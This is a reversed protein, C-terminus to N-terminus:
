HVYILENANLIARAFAALGHQAILKRADDLETADPQRAFALAFAREIEHGPAEAKLREALFRAQDLVFSNNLLALAQLPSTTVIRKPEPLSSDPCDYQGLLESRVSRAATQYIARRWTDPGFSERPFYTAVNDVTYKFLQFGPGGMRRDLQGSVALITDRIAEAALRQPPYRWLYRAESDIKANAEHHSSSQRYARSLMIERHLPKLRWGHALLRGALHDLLAPHTPREGNFGFDSPAGALGRGFHHQWVRNALVRPTLPNRADTIWRALAERRGRSPADWPLEFRDFPLTSLSAPAIEAGRQMVNGGKLLYVPEPPAEPKGAYVTPLKPLKNLAARAQKERAELARWEPRVRDLLLAEVEGPAAPLRGESGAAQRWARGDLSVEIAYRAAIPGTFREQFGGLRDYSWAVKDITEERALTFTLEANNAAAFWRRDYAGDNLFRAAYADPNGDAKRTSSAEISAQRAVNTAGSFIELEDLGPAGRTTELIRLRVYRARTPAFTEETLRADPAPRYSKLIAERRAAIEPAAAKKFEALAESAEQLAKELLERQRAAEARQAPTVWEREGHTFGNFVAALRYYDAQQIPDFKHDHCRACSVTLGLFASATANIMDDLDDARQQRKFAEAQNGVTDHPGAVLFGSGTGDDDALHDRIFQDFPQDSNLSHIVWDRFPWANPRLHNQEYGHSEGFRIVDLWHRGWREGYAPSALLRDVLKEYDPKKLYAEVEEPTPPLGTLDFTARRLLTRPDAEKSPTLSKEKLAALWLSDITEAAHPQIPQLSWFSQRNRLTTTWPAGNQLWAEIVQQDAAPLPRGPPMKGTKIKALLLSNAPTQADLAKHQIAQARTELVLNGMHKAADHCPLCSKELLATAANQARTASTLLIFIVLRPTM